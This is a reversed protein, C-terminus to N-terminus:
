KVAGTADVWAQGNWWIPLELTTDFYAQMVAPTAPREATTGSVRPPTMVAMLAACVATYLCEDPTCTCALMSSIMEGQVCYKM